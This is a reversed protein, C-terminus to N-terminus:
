GWVQGVDCLMRGCGAALAIQVDVYLTRKFDRVLQLVTCGDARKGAAEAKLKFQVVIWELLDTSKPGVEGYDTMAMAAFVPAQKRKAEKVQRGAVHLLRAYKQFKETEREVLAPSPDMKNPDLVDMM